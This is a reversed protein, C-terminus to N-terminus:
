KDPFDPFAAQLLNEPIRITSDNHITDLISRMRNDDFDCKLIVWIIGHVKVGNKQALKRLRNDGTVLSWGRTKAVAYAVCDYFSLKHHLERTEVALVFEEDTMDTTKLGLSRLEDAYTPPAIVEDELMSSEMYIDDDIALFDKYIDLKLSDILINTDAFLTM